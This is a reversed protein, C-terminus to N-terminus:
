TKLSQFKHKLTLFPQNVLSIQKTNKKIMLMFSLVFSRFIYSSFIIYLYLKSNKHKHKSKNGRFDLLPVTSKNSNQIETVYYCWSNVLKYNVWECM